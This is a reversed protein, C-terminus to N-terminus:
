LLYHRWIKLDFVVVALELDCTPYNTEHKKLQRSAYAIVRGSQMLVYRLGQGSIDNFIVFGAGITLLTLVPALILRNKLEQFNQECQEDREFKVRKRTLRTLPADILSVHEM